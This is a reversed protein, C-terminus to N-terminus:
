ASTQLVEYLPEFGSSVERELIKVSTLPMVMCCYMMLLLTSRTFSSNNYSSSLVEGFDGIHKVIATHCM